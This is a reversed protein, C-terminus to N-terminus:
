QRYRMRGFQPYRKKDAGMSSPGDAKITKERQLMRIEAQYMTDYKQAQSLYKNDDLAKRLYFDRKMGYQYVLSDPTEFVSSLDVLTDFKKYIHFNFAGIRDTRAAPNFMLVNAEDDYAIENVYDSPNVALSQRYRMTTVDIEKPRFTRNSGASVFQNVETYNIKWINTPFDVSDADALVDLSYNRKLFRYPRKAQKYLDKSVNNMVGLWTPIDFVNFTTDDVEAIVQMLTQGASNEQFGAAQIPESQDTETLSLSDYFSVKYYYTDLASLDRYTTRGNANDWDIDQTSVLSYSGGVGSTSRYFRIQDFDLAYLPDNADHNFNTTGVTISTPSNASQVVMETRERQPAGILVKHGNVFKNSNKVKLVTTSATAVSASSLVTKEAESLDPNYAYINM